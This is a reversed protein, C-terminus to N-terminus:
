RAFLLFLILLVAFIVFAIWFSYMAPQSKDTFVNHNGKIFMWGLAIGMQATISLTFAMFISLLTIDAPNM